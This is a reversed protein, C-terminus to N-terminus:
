NRKDDPKKGDKPDAKHDGKNDPKKGPPTWNKPYSRVVDNHHQEPSDRFSMRVAPAALLVNAAVGRPKPRRVWSNGERYVYEHRSRSYYTEYAPYYDYDDQIVVTAQVRAESGGRYGGRQNPGDVLCGTFAALLAAGIMLATKDASRLYRKTM